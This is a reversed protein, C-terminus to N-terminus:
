VRLVQRQIRSSALHLHTILWTILSIKYYYLAMITARIPYQLYYIYMFTVFECRAMM